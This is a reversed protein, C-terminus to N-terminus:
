ATETEQVGEEEWEIEGNLEEFLAIFETTLRHSRSM